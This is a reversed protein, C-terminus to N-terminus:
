HHHWQNHMEGRSQYRGCGTGRDNPQNFGASRDTPRYERGQEIPKKPKESVVPCPMGQKEVSHLLRDAPYKGRKSTNDASHYGTPSSRDRVSSLYTRVLRLSVRWLSM